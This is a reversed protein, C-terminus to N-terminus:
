KRKHKVKYNPPIVGRQKPMKVIPNDRLLPVVPLESAKLEKPADEVVVVEVKDKLTLFANCIAFHTGASILLHKKDNNM